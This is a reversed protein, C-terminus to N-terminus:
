DQQSAPTKPQFLIADLREVAEERLQEDLESWQKGSLDACEYDFHAILLDRLEAESMEGAELRAWGQKRGWLVYEIRETLAREPAQVGHLERSFYRAFELLKERAPLPRLM